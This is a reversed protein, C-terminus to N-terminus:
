RDAMAHLGTSLDERRNVNLKRYVKTLHQEVTSVTVYLQHAIERNTLGQAALTAVRLQADSLSGAVSHVMTSPAGALPRKPEPCTVRTMDVGCRKAIVAARREAVRAHDLEGLEQHARSQGHLTYALEADAGCAELIEASEKLLALKRHPESTAALLRLAIGRSRSRGAPLRALQEGALTRAAEVEGRLLHVQALDNRWAVVGPLDIGWRIMLEGCAEFDRRAALTRDTALYLQGRAQLYYLGFTSQFMEDPVPVRLVAEAAQYQGMATHALVLGSLPCGIKTGWMRPDLHTLATKGCTVALPLDGSRLAVVSRIASLEAQWAGARLAMAEQLLLDVRTAALDLWDACILAAVATMLPELTADSLRCTRLLHEAGAAIDAYSGGGLVNNLLTVAQLQPAAAFTAPSVERHLVTRASPVRELLTPYFYTLWSRFLDLEAADQGDREGVTDVLRALAGAADSIRGHWLLYRIMAAVDEHSLKARQHAAILKPLHRAAALPNIRWEVSTLRATLAAQETEDGSFQRAAELYRMALDPQRRELAVDAAQRLVGIGWPEVPGGTAALHEAIDTADGTADHLWAAARRHIRDREASTLAHVVAQHAAPHRFGHADLLGAQRLADLTRVVDKAGRGTLAGILEPTGSAGLVAVAKTVDAMVPDCRHLCALVAAEFAGAAIPGRLGIPGAVALSDTILADLLLRNGGTVDHFAPALRLGREGGVHKALLNAVDHSELPCLLVRHCHPRRSIETLFRQYDPTPTDDTTLVMHLRVSRSRRAVFALCRLSLSDVHRVDDVGIVVPRSEVLQLIATGLEHV